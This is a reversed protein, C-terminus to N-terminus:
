ETSLHEAELHRSHSAEKNGAGFIKISGSGFSFCAKRCSPQGVLNDREEPVKGIM